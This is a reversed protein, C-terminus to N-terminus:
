EIIEEIEVAKENKTIVEQDMEIFAHELGEFISEEDIMKQINSVNDLIRSFEGSLAKLSVKYENLMNECCSKYSNRMEIKEEEMQMKEEVLKNLREELQAILEAEKAEQDKMVKEFMAYMMDIKLQVDEKSYGGLLVKKLKMQSMYEKLEKLKSM